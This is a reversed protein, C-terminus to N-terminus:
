HDKVVLVVVVVVRDVELNLVDVCDRGDGLQPDVGPVVNPGYGDLYLNTMKDEIEKNEM